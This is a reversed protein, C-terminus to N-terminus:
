SRSRASRTRAGSDHRTPIPPSTGGPRCEAPTGTAPLAETRPATFRLLKRRHRVEGTREAAGPSMRREASGSGRGDADLATLIRVCVSHLLHVDKDPLLTLRELIRNYVPSGPILGTDSLIRDVRGRLAEWAAVDQGEKRVPMEGLALPSLEYAYVMVAQGLNLSPYKSRMPIRSAAHCLDLEDNSLGSEERGFVLAATPVTDGKGRLLELLRPPDHYDERVTRRKATAGTVFGVDAVADALSPFLEARELIDQSGHAVARARPSLHDCPNVLRLREFGMTKLARAAAGVNEPRAPEVLVFILEM